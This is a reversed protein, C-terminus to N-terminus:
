SQSGFAGLHSPSLTRSNSAPRSSSSSSKDEMSVIVFLTINIHKRRDHLVPNKTLALAIAPQNDVMLTPPRAEERILESLLRRLRVGQCAATAAVIYEVKCTSLAVV